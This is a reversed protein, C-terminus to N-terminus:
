VLGLGVLLSLGLAVGGVLVLAANPTYAGDLPEFPVLMSITMLLAMIGFPRAIPVGTLRAIALLAAAVGAMVLLPLTHARASEDREAVPLPTFGFGVLAAVMGAGVSPLWTRDRVAGAVWRLSVYLLALSLAGAGLLWYDTATTGAARTAPWILVLVAVPVAIWPSARWRGATNSSGNGRPDGMFPQALASGQAPGLWEDRRSAPSLALAAARRSDTAQIRLLM